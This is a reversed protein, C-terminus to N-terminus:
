PEEFELEPEPAPGTRVSQGVSRFGQGTVQFKVEDFILSNPLSLSFERRAGPRLPGEELPVERAALLSGNQDYFLANVALRTAMSSGLNQIVGNVVVGTEGGDAQSWQVVQVGRGSGAVAEPAAVAGAAAGAEAEAEGEPELEEGDVHGVDRDTLVVVAERPEAAPKETRERTQRARQEAERAALEASAELDAKDLRVSALTGDALTFVVLKGRVEWPGHTEIISGDRTVLKDARAAVSACALLAALLISGRGPSM